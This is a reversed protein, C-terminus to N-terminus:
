IVEVQMCHCLFIWIQDISIYKVDEIPAVVIKYSFLVLFHQLDLFM